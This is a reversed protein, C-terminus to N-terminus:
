REEEPLDVPGTTIRQFTETATKFRQSQLFILAREATSPDFLGAHLDLVIDQGEDFVGLVEAQDKLQELLEEGFEDDRRDSQSSM